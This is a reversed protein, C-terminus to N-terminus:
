TPHVLQGDPVAEATADQPADPTTDFTSAEPLGALNPVARAAVGPAHMEGGLEVPEANRARDPAPRSPALVDGATGVLAIGVLWLALVWWRNPAPQPTESM